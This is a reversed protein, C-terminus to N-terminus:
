AMAPENQLSRIIAPVDLIMCIDGSGLLTIGSYLDINNVPKQLPKVIIEQQRLLNDVILGIKKNSYNIIIVEFNDRMLNSKGYSVKNDGFLYDNLYILRITEEYHDMVLTSGVEHLDSNKIKVVAEIHILPLAFHCYNVEFLLAPKVAITTPLSLTFTTYEGIESELSINGGIKDLAEKVIDLGVGRGSFETVESAGTFGPEFILSIAQKDQINQAKEATLFGKEIAIAKIKEPDIGKGDDSVKILVIGKESTAEITLTGSEKKGAAKREAITEIGHSVSNRILHLLSDTIIHLINRDIKIDEGKMILEVKKDEIVAIDRVIRPFKTFLAGVTILRTNMVSEQLENIIRYLHSSINILEGNDQKKAISYIRDRDIILEGVLNLMEDLAKVPISILESLAVNQATYYKNAQAQEAQIEEHKLLQDIKELINKLTKEDVSQDINKLISGLYDISEFLIPVLNPELVIDENRLASFFNELKHAISGVADYGMATANAKLNHMLRFIEALLKKDQPNKELDVIHNSIIDFDQLAEAIFIKKYELERNGM